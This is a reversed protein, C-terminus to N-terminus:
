SSQSALLRCQRSTLKPTPQEVSRNGSSSSVLRLGANAITGIYAATLAASFTTSAAAALIRASAPAAPTSNANTPAGLYASSVSNNLMAPFSSPAVATVVTGGTVAGATAFFPVRVAQNLAASGNTCATESSLALTPQTVLPDGLLILLEVVFLGQVTRNLKQGRSERYM